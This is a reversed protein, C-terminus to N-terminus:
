VLSKAPERRLFSPGSPKPPSATLAAAPPTQAISALVLLSSRGQKAVLAANAIQSHVLAGGQQGELNAMLISPLDRSTSSMKMCVACQLSCAAAFGFGNDGGPDQVADSHGVKIESAAPVTTTHNHHHFHHHFTSSGHHVPCSVVL